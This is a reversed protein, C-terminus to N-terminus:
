SSHPWPFCEGPGDVHQSKLKRYFLGLLDGKSATKSMESLSCIFALEKGLVHQARQQGRSFNICDRDFCCNGLRKCWVGKSFGIFIVTGKWFFVVTNCLYVFVFKIHCKLLSFLGRSVWWSVSIASGSAFWDLFWPTIKKRTLSINLCACLFCLSINFFGGHVWCHAVNQWEQKM